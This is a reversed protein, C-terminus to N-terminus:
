SLTQLVHQLVLKDNEEFYNKSKAINRFM